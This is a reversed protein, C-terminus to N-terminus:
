QVSAVFARASSLDDVPGARELIGIATSAHARAADLEGSDKLVEALALLLKPDQPSLAVARLLLRAGEDRDGGLVRPLEALMAGKGALAPAYDPALTLALDIENKARRLDSLAGFLKWTSRYMLSKGLNCFIAFHAAADQPNTAAAQEALALGAALLAAREPPPMGDSQQCIEIAALAQPGASSPHGAHAAAAAVIIAGVGAATIVMERAARSQM